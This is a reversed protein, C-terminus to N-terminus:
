QKRYQVGCEERGNVLGSATYCAPKKVVRGSRTKVVPMSGCEPRRAALSLEPAKPLDEPDPCISPQGSVDPVTEIESQRPEDTASPRPEDIASPRPENTASLRTESPHPQLLMGGDSVIDVQDSLERLSLSDKLELGVPNARIQDSHHKWRGGNDCQVEYTKIGVAAMVVGSQWRSHGPRYDRVLVKVGPNFIHEIAASRSMM